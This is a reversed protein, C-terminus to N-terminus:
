ALHRRHGVRRHRPRCRDVGRRPTRRPIGARGAAIRASQIARMVLYVCYDSASRRVALNADEGGICQYLRFLSSSLLQEEFYGLHPLLSTDAGPPSLRTLSRRGCWCWGRMAARDHRRPVFIWPFTRFRDGPVGKRCAEPDTVIAALADGASHAFRFELEGFSAYNLVHGFEHWAWREDAALGLPQARWRKARNQLRSRHALEAWGFSVELEPPLQAAARSGSTRVSM